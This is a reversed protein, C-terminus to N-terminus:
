AFHRALAAMSGPQDRRNWYGAGSKYALPSHYQVARGLMWRPLLRLAPDHGAKRATELHWAVARTLLGPGSRNWVNDGHGELLARRVSFAAWLIAPHRPPAIIINNGLAGTPERYLTLCDGPGPLEGIDGILWDDCDAYIGGHLGLHCLRLFDSEETPSGARNFARVWDQGWKRHLFQQAAHRDMLIHRFGPAQRWSDIAPQIQAPPAGQSWYQLVTRPVTAGDGAPAPAPAQARPAAMFRDIHRIAHITLDHPPLTEDVDRLAEALLSGIMTPALHAARGALKRALEPLDRREACVLMTAIQWVPLSDLRTEAAGLSRLGRAPQDIEAWGQAVVGRWAATTAAPTEAVAELVRAARAGQGSGSLCAIYEKLLAPHDGRRRWVLGMYRAAVRIRGSQRLLTANQLIQELRAPAARRDRCALGQQPQGEMLAILGETLGRDEPRVRDLLHKAIRRWAPLGTALCARIIARATEFRLGDRQMLLPVLGAYDPGAGLRDARSYLAWLRDAALGPASSCLPQHNDRLLDRALTDPVRNLGHCLIEALMDRAAPDTERRLRGAVLRLMEELGAADESRHLAEIRALLAGRHLPDIGLLRASAALCAPYDEAALLASVLHSLVMANDPREGALVTLLAASEPARGVLRLMQGRRLRLHFNGPEQTLFREALALAEAARGAAALTNVHLETRRADGPGPLADLVALAEAHRRLAALAAARELRLAPDDPHNPAQGELLALAQAAQGQRRLLAAKRLLFPPHDPVRACAEDLFRAMDAQRGRRAAMDIRHLLVSRNAPQRALMEDWCRLALEYDGEAGRMRCALALAHLVRGNGPHRGHLDRLVAVAEDHRGQRRLAEARALEEALRDPATQVARDM